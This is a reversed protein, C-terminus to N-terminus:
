FRWGATINIGLASRRILGGLGLLETMFGTMDFGIDDDDYSASGSYGDDSGISKVKYDIGYRVDAGLVFKNGIPLAFGIGFDVGFTAFNKYMKETSKQGGFEATYKMKGVSIGVKPGLFPTLRVKGIPIDYGLLLAIDLSTYKCKTAFSDSGWKYKVGNGFAFLLEPQLSIAGSGIEAIEFHSYFGIDGGASAKRYDDGIGPDDVFRTGTNILLGGKVGIELVKEAFAVSGFIAAAAVLVLVKKM